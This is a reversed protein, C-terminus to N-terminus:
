RDRGRPDELVIKRHHLLSTPIGKNGHTSMPQEMAGGLSWEQGSGKQLGEWVLLRPAKDRLALVRGPAPPRLAEWILEFPAACGEKQEWVPSDPERPRISRGELLGGPHTHEPVRGEENDGHLM